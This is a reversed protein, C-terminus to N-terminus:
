YVGGRFTSHMGELKGCDSSVSRGRVNQKCGLNKEDSKLAVLDKFFIKIMILFGRLSHDLILFAQFSILLLSFFM